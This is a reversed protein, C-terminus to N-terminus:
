YQAGPSEVQRGMAAKRRLSNPPVTPPGMILFLSNANPPRKRNLDEFAAVSNVVTSVGWNACNTWCFKGFLKDDVNKWCAGGATAGVVPM